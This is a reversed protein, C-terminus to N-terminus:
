IFGAREREPLKRTGIDEKTVTIKVGSNFGHNVYARRSAKEIGEELSKRVERPSFAKLSDAVELSLDALNEKIPLSERLTEYISSIVSRVMEEQSPPDISYVLFRSLLSSPIGDLINATAIWTIWSTDIPFEVGLGEDAFEKATVRELLNHLVDLIAGHERGTASKEIEDLIFLPNAENGFCLLKAVPGLTGSKFTFSLGTLSSASSQSSCDMFTIGVGLIQALKKLYASKGIGPPGVLLLPPIPVPREGGLKGIMALSQIKSTVKNFNPFRESLNEFIEPDPLPVIRRAPGASLIRELVKRRKEESEHAETIFDQMGKEVKETFLRMTQYTDLPHPIETEANKKNRFNKLESFIENVSDKMELDSEDSPIRDYDQLPLRANRSILSELYTEPSVSLASAKEMIEELLDNSVSISLSSTGSTNM